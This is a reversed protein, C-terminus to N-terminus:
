VMIISWILIILNRPSIRLKRGPFRTYIELYKIRNNIRETYGEVIKFFRDVNFNSAIFKERKDPTWRINLDPYSRKIIKWLDTDSLFQDINEILRTKASKLKHVKDKLLAIEGRLDYLKYLAAVWYLSYIFNWIGYGYRKKLFEDVEQYSSNISIEKIPKKPSASKSKAKESTRIKHRM